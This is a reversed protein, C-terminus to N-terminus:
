PRGWFRAWAWKRVRKAAASAPSIAVIPVMTEPLATGVAAFISGTIGESIKLREGLHELANTFAEAGILIVVLTLLLLGIDTLLMAIGLVFHAFGSLNAAPLKACGGRRGGPM